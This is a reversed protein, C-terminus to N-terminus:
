NVNIELDFKKEIARLYKEHHGAALLMPAYADRGSINMMYPFQKFHELYQDAFDLIGQQIDRIGPLNEDYKGFRLYIEDKGSLVEKQIIRKEIKQEKNVKIEKGSGFTSASKCSHLIREADTSDITDIETMYFGEFKPTPSSLLLEWFVNYDKNPDHKKLLDRNHSHSYLYAVLKGSQLFSETADPEANYPTNTGAIIGTIECPIRWVHETLYSLALAGSGAWGIDVAAAHNCNSLKERYYRCAAEQQSIYYSLVQDWKAEIFRRLLFGNKDTLEDESMLDVFDKKRAKELEEVSFKKEILSLYKSRYASEDFSKQANKKQEIDKELQILAFHKSDNEERIRRELWIKKWDELQDALFELEMGQLIERISYDQNVKHYIFRRFFDHKDQDAMLKTAAKRSWYVYMTDEGPFMRDYVKQLMDGDRSLFLIRDIGCKHCYGHIFSCYGVVFLGGYIYGYEYEMSYDALGNYLHNSILARYGSGVLFSMDFARNLIVNKNVNPYPLTDWGAKKAMADDSRPNDGIHIIRFSNREAESHGHDVSHKEAFSPILEDIVLEYLSGSAKNKQYECSVYTKEAGKFGASEIMKTICAEPLYMDSVIIIRKGMEQLRQWVDLMFPNAYCLALETEIEIQIGQESDCGVDEALNEWIDRLGIEMHGNKANCKMRADLEAWIRINRFNMIGMQEGILYFVDTPLSFPRFILTDFVDFSIVDYGSLIQVYSEVNLNQNVQRYSHSESGKVNLQKVEYYEVEPRKKLFRCFFCYYSMNLWILYLYSLVRRVGQSNDHVKHYRYTIGDIRNVFFNYIKLRM